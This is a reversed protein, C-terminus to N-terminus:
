NVFVPSGASDVVPTYKATFYGNAVCAAPGTSKNFQQDTFSISNDANDATGTISNNNATFVCTVTGLLTRLVLTASIPATDTGSVTVTGDSAVTTAYPQNNIAVSNVGLVGIVGTVTCDALGLTAGLAAAGPAAPNDDVVASLSSTNCKMGNAGGAATAFVAQSGTALGSAITDGAAVATGAPAGATLVTDDDALAPAAGILLPVLAGTLVAVTIRKSHM